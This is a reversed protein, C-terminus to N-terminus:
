CGYQQGSANSSRSHRFVIRPSLAFFICVAKRRIRFISLFFFIRGYLSFICRGMVLGTRSHACILVM